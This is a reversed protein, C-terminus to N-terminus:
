AKLLNKAIDTLKEFVATRSTSPRWLVAIDRYANYKLPQIALNHELGLGKEVAMHPLFTIGQHLSTMQVLTALSTASFPNILEINSLHCASMAHETLCHEHNLLFVSHEPLDEGEQNNIYRAVLEKNGAIYFSDQGILTSHFSHENIPLALLVMDLEGQELQIMLNETTNESLYLSFNPADLQCQQVLDTLLFPAITPICGLKITEKNNSEQAAYEVMDNVDLLLRKAMAVIKKGAPTFLFVKHSREILSCGLQQELKVIASSLTPQSVFCSQAAKNFHQYKELALLYHLHKLNPFVKNAVNIKWKFLNILTFHM